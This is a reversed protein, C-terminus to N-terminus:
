DKIWLSQRGKKQNNVLAHNIVYFLRYLILTMLATFVAEPIIIRTLFHAFALRGRLLFFVIYVIFNCLIDFSTALILPMKVDNDFYVQCFTGSAYGALMYLLGYFGFINGYGFDVLLGSVLGTLIGEKKGQMFAISVTIIIMLNPSVSTISQLSFVTTQLIYCALILIFIVAKRIM